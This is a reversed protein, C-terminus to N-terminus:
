SESELHEAYQDADMLDGLEGEDSLTMKFLWGDNYPDSNVIEPSDALLENIAIIEGSLPCYLDSAAKVSEVVGVEDGSAMISELEPLEIFVIDGLAEQAHETIGITVNGDEEIRVWEHSSLYKLNSPINSM